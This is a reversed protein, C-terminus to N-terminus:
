NYMLSNNTETNVSKNLKILENLNNIANEPEEYYQFLFEQMTSVTVKIKLKLFKTYFENFKDDTFKEDMFNKFMDYLQEKVMYDFHYVKDIRGRRKLAPDFSNFNNTTIFCLLGSPTGIGDLGNLLGSFTYAHKGSDDTRKNDFLADIDEFVLITKKNLNRLLSKFTSDTFKSGVAPTIIAIDYGIYSAVATIVSTKGTGPLGELCIVRKHKRGLKNYKDITDQNLFNNIDALLEKKLSKELYITDFSRHKEQSIDEWHKEENIYITYSSDENYNSNFKYKRNYKHIVLSLDNILNGEYEDFDGKCIQIIYHKFQRSEDPIVDLDTNLNNICYVLIEITDKFTFIYPNKRPLLTFDTIVKDKSQPEMDSIELNIQNSENKELEYKLSNIIKMEHNLNEINDCINDGINTNVNNKDSKNNINKNSISNYMIRSFTFNIKNYIWNNGPLNNIHFSMYHCNEKCACEINFPSDNDNKDYKFDMINTTSM